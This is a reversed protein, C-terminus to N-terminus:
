RNYHLAKDIFTEYESNISRFLDIMDIQCWNDVLRKGDCTWFDNVFIRPIRNKEPEFGFYKGKHTCTMSPHGMLGAYNGDSFIVKNIGKSGDRDPIFELFRSQHYDQFESLGKLHGINFPGVWHMNETDWWKHMEMSYLSKGDYSRLGQIMGWLVNWCDNQNKEITAHHITKVREFDMCSPSQWWTSYQWPCLQHRVLLETIDCNIFHGHCNEHEGIQFTYAKYDPELTKWKKTFVGTIYYVRGKCFKNNILFNSKINLVETVEIDSFCNWFSDWQKDNKFPYSYITM